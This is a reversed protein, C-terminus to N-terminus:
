HYLEKEEQCLANGGRKYSNNFPKTYSGINMNNDPTYLFLPM